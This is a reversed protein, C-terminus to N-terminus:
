RVNFMKPSKARGLVIVNIYASIGALFYRLFIKSDRLKRNSVLVKQRLSYKIKGYKGYKKALRLCLEWDESTSLSTNFGGIAKIADRRVAFNNGWLLHRGFLQNIKVFIDYILFLFVTFVGADKPEMPGGFAILGSGRMESEIRLLWKKPLFADADTFAIIEGQAREVGCQRAASVGRTLCPIVTAALSKAIESTKDDSNNDVVIVEYNEKPYDQSSVTKLVNAIYKEENYAPIVVSIYLKKDEM